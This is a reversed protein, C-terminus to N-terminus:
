YKNMSKTKAVLANRKNVNRAIPKGDLFLNNPQPRGVGKNLRKLEEYIKADYPNTAQRDNIAVNKVAGKALIEQTEEATHVRTGQKLYTLAAGDSEIMSYKGNRELLEAGGGDNVIAYGEPSSKTGKAFKPVPPVAAIQAAGILGAKIILPLTAPFGPLLSSIGVATNTLINFIAQRRDNRAQEQRLRKEQEAFNKQILLRGEETLGERRLKEENANRLLELEANINNRQVQFLNNGLEQAFYINDARKAAKEDELRKVEDATKKAEDREKKNREAIGNIEADMRELFSDTSDKLADESEKLTEGYLVEYLGNIEKLKKAMLEQSNLARGLIFIQTRLEENNKKLNETNRETEVNSDKQENVYNEIATISKNLLNIKTAYESNENVLADRQKIMENIQSQYMGTIDKRQMEEIRRNLSDIQFTNDAFSDNMSQLKPLLNDIMKTAVEEITLNSGAEQLEQFRSTLKEVAKSAVETEATDKLKGMLEDVSENVSELWGLLNTLGSIFARLFKGIAGEGDEVSLVLGEFASNLLKMEGSLTNLQVKAFEDATGAANELSITNRNIKETQDAIVSAVVAGRKGFLQNAATLKNTSNTIESMAEEFTIGKDALDIYINRLATAASSADINADAAAGLIATTRQISVGSARAAPSVIALATSLREFNLASIQTSKTLVDAVESSRNAELGFANLQGAVLEAASALDTQLATAASLIGPTMAIINEESQGLRALETQANAVQSASFETSKGLELQQQQLKQTESTTRGLIGALTANADQYNRTIKIARGIARVFGTVAVIGATIGVAINRFTKPYNGVNRQFQGASADVKKLRTDLENVRRGMERTEKAALGKSIALSKYTARLKNLTRSEELYADDLKEEQKIAERTERQTKKLEASKRIYEKNNKQLATTLRKEVKELETQNASLKKTTTSVEKLSKANGFEANLKKGSNIVSLIQKDLKEFNSALELPASFAKKEILEERTLEAM